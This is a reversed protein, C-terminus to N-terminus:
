STDKTANSVNSMNQNLVYRDQLFPILLNDLFPHNTAVRNCSETFTTTPTPSNVIAQHPNQFDQCEGTAHFNGLLLSSSIFTNKHKPAAPITASCALKAAAKSLDLAQLFMFLM